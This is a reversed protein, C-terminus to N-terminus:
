GENSQSNIEVIRANITNVRTQVNLLDANVKTIATEIQTKLTDCEDYYNAINTKLGKHVFEAMGEKAGQWCGNRSMDYNSIDGQLVFIENMEKELKTKQEQLTKLMEQYARQSGSLGILESGLSNKESIDGISSM